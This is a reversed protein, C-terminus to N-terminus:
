SLTLADARALMRRNNTILNGASVVPASRVTQNAPRVFDLRRMWADQHKVLKLHKSNLIYWIGSPCQADFVLAANKHALSEFGMDAMDTDMYRINPSALSEYKEFGAQTTIELDPRDAGRIVSNFLTNLENINAAINMNTDMTSRWWTETGSDIGGLTGANDVIAALGLMDKSGNGTGDLFFINNLYETFSLELQDMKAQLLKIVQSHGANKLEDELSITVTGVLFRWQYEAYGIGQQPSVDFTDYGAYSGVTNNLGYLLPERITVGGDTVVSGKSELFAYLAIQKSINDALTTSLYNDLTTAILQDSFAM